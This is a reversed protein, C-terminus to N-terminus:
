EGATIVDRKNPIILDNYTTESSPIQVVYNNGKEKLRYTEHNTADSYWRHEIEPMGFRRLDWFRLAEEFCLERRRENWIYKILEDKEKFDRSTIARYDSKRIRNNRIQNLIAIAEESIENTKQAYAEALNLYGEVTRWNEFYNKKSSKFKIPYNYGYKTEDPEWPWPSVAVYDQMFYAKLRLDSEEYAKILSSKLQYSVRFGLTYLSSPASLFDYSQNGTGFTFVIEKNNELNMIYFDDSSLKGMKDEPISNLDFIFSNESLMKKAHEIVNDWKEQFLAIRSALLRLSSPSLLHLNASPTSREMYEIAKGIDSNIQQWTEEVSSRMKPKVNIDPSTVIIVGPTNKNEDSYPLAYTNILCFYHYARLAYAQAALFMYKGEEDKNHNMSPLAQIITNCGLINKYRSDWFNDSIKKEMNYDWTYVYKGDGGNLVDFFLEGTHSSKTLYSMEVDDTMLKFWAADKNFRNPYGEAYLLPAYEEVKSPILLEGSTEKLFDDCGSGMICLIFLVITTHYTIYKM